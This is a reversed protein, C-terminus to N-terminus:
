ISGWLIGYIERPPIGLIRMLGIVGEKIDVAESIRQNNEGRNLQANYIAKWAEYKEQLSTISLAKAEMDTAVAGPLGQELNSFIRAYFDATSEISKKLFDPINGTNGLFLGQIRLFAEELEEELSQKQSMDILMDMEQANLNLATFAAKLENLLPSASPYKSTRENNLLESQAKAILQPITNQLKQTQTM